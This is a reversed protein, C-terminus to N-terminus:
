RLIELTSCLVMFLVFVFIFRASPRPTILVSSTMFTFLAESSLNNADSFSIFSQIQLDPGFNAYDMDTEFAKSIHLLVSLERKDGPM